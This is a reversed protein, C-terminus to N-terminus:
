KRILEVISQHDQDISYRSGAAAVKSRERSRCSAVAVVTVVITAPVTSSRIVMM